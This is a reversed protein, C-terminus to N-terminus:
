VLKKSGEFTWPSDEESAFRRWGSLKMKGFKALIYIGAAAKGAGFGPLASLRDRLEKANDVSDWVAAGDNGYAKAIAACLARVRGAMMRPYRHMAPPRRFV